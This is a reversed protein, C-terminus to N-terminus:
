GTSRYLYCVCVIGWASVCKRQGGDWKGCFNGKPVDMETGTGEPKSRDMKVCGEHDKLALRKCAGPSLRAQKPAM